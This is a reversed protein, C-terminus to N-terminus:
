KTQKSKNKANLEAAKAFDIKAGAKDKLKLKTSGRNSYAEAFTPNLGIAKDYDDKAEKYDKLYYKATGRDNYADAYNPNLEIAKNYDGRAGKYDKLNFKSNGRFFFVEAVTPNLEIVNDFDTIAGTYDQLCLKAIGCYYRALANDPDLEISRKLNTIAGTFNKHDFKIVGRNFFIGSESQESNKHSIYDVILRLGQPPSPAAQNVRVQVAPLATQDSNAPQLQEPNTNFIEDEGKIPRYYPPPLTVKLVTVKNSENM